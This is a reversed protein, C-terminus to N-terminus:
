CRVEGQKQNTQPYRIVNTRDTLRKQIKNIVIKREGKVMYTAIYHCTVLESIWRSITETAVNFLLALSENKAWCYGLKKSLFLVESYLIKASSSLNSDYRVDAPLLTYYTPM